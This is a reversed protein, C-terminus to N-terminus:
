APGISGYVSLFQAQIVNAPVWIFLKPGRRSRLRMKFGTYVESLLYGETVDISLYETYYCFPYNYKISQCEKDYDIANLEHFGADDDDVANFYIFGKREDESKLRDSGYVGISESYSIELYIEHSVTGDFKSKWSRIFYESTFSGFNWDSWTSEEFYSLSPGSYRIHRDFKTPQNIRINKTLVNLPLMHAPPSTLHCGGVLLLAILLIPAQYLCPMTALRPVRDIM